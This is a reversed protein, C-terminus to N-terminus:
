NNLITLVTQQKRVMATRKKYLYPNDLEINWQTYEKKDKKSHMSIIEGVKGQHPSTTIKVRTGVSFPNTYNNDGDDDDNLDSSSEVAAQVIPPSPLLTRDLERKQLHLTAVEVLRLLQLNSLDECLSDIAEDDDFSIRM